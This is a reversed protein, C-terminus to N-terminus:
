EVQGQLFWRRRRRDYFIWLLDGRGTEVVHYEREVERVWWGGDVLYPGVDRVVPGRELGRVLWGDPEHRGRPPLPRPKSLIRRVLFAPPPAGPPRPEVQPLRAREVPVWEFSAEPLHADRLRPRVVAEPGFEARIRAFARSAADLDRRPREAFLQLQELTAPTGRLEISLAVLGAHLRTSELKLHVLELVQTADLTPAAPRVAEARVPEPPPGGPQADDPLSVDRVRPGTVEFELTLRLEVLAERREALEALLPGLSRKVLFVLRGVDGEPREFEMRVSVPEEPPVGEFPRHLEGTALRYLRLAEPGFRTGLGDPPLALLDKVRRVGLRALRDRLRPPVDLRSLEVREAARREAVRTPLVRPVRVSRAVAYTGFRTFGAVVSAALGREWLRDRISEVWRRRGGTLRELGSADLWVVGPEEAAPEVGPTFDRLMEVLEGVGRRIRAEPVEAARLDRELALAAAYRMGPLVRSRRAREDVWLVEGQPEDAAVVAVPSGVWDPRDLLLLQLPLAPVNVCAWREASPAPSEAATRPASRVSRGESGTPVM